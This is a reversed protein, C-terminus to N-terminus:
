VVLTFKDRHKILCYGMFVYASTSTYSWWEHGARKIGSSIAGPVWQIPLKTPGLAPRSETSFLFIRGKGPISSHGNLGYNCQSLERKESLLPRFSISM